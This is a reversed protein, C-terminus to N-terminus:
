AGRAMLADLKADMAMALKEIGVVKELIAMDTHVLDTLDRLVAAHDMELRDVRGGMGSDHQGNNM